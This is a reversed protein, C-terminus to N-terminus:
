IYLSLRVNPLDDASGCTEKARIIPALGSHRDNGVQLIMEFAEGGFDAEIETANGPDGIRRLM